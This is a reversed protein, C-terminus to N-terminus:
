SPTASKTKSTMQERPTLAQGGSRTPTPTDVATSVAARRDLFARIRGTPECWGSASAALISVSSSSPSLSSPMPGWPRVPLALTM